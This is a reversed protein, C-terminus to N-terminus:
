SVKAVGHHNIFSWLEEDSMLKEQSVSFDPALEYRNDYMDRYKEMCQAFWVM